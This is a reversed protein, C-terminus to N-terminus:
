WIVVDLNLCLDIMIFVLGYMKECSVLYVEVYLLLLIGVKVGFYGCVVVFWIFWGYYFLVVSVVLFFDSGVSGLVGGM